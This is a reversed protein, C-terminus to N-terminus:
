RGVLIENGCDPCQEHIYGYYMKDFQIMQPIGCEPCVFHVMIKGECKKPEPPPCNCEGDVIWVGCEPCREDCSPCIGDETFEGCTPCREDCDLCHVGDNSMEGGCNPCVDSKDIDYTSWM